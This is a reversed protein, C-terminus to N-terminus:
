DMTDMHRCRSADLHQEENLTGEACGKAKLERSEIMVFRRSVRTM